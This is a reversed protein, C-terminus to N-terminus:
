MRSGSRHELDQLQDLKAQFWSGVSFEVAGGRVIRGSVAKGAEMIPARLFLLLFVILGAWVLTQFLPM